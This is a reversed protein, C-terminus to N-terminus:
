VNQVGPYNSQIVYERQAAKASCIEHYQCGGWQACNSTSMPWTQTSVATLYRNVVDYITMRLEADEDPGYDAFVRAFEQKTKAVQIGNMMVSRIPLLSSRMAWAYLAFQLRPKVQQYFNTGLTSTTKHDCVVLEGTEVNQLIADITGFVVVQYGATEGFQIEFPREIFAGSSDTYGIWPDEKYVKFYEELIKRGNAASRKTGEAQVLRNEYASFADLVDSLVRSGPPNSYLKALGAHIATGFIQAESEDFSSRLDRELLYHAKRMCEQIVSASSANIYITKNVKQVAYYPDPAHISLMRKVNTPNM